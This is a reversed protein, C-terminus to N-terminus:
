HNWTFKLLQEFPEPSIAIPGLFPHIYLLLFYLVGVITLGLFGILVLHTRGSNM